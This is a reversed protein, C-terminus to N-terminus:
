FEMHIIHFLMSFNEITKLKEEDNREYKHTQHLKM